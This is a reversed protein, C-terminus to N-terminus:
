HRRIVPYGLMLLWRRRGRVPAHYPPTGGRTLLGSDSLSLTLVRLHMVSRRLLFSDSLHLTSSHVAKSPCGCYAPFLTSSFLYDVVGVALAYDVPAPADKELAPAGDGVGM